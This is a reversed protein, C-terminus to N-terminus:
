YSFEPSTKAFKMSKKAVSINCDPTYSNNEEILVKYLNVFLCIFYVRGQYVVTLLPPPPPPPPPPPLLPPPPHHVILTKALCFTDVM